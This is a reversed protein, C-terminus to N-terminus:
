LSSASARVVEGSCRRRPFEFRSGGRGIGPLLVFERFGRGGGLVGRYGRGRHVLHGFEVDTFKAGIGVLGPCEGEVAFEEGGRVVGPLLSVLLECGFEADELDFVVGDSM